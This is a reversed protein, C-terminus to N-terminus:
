SGVAQCFDFVNEPDYHKKIRELRPLNTGYYPTCGSLSPDTFNVYSMDSAHAGMEAHLGDLWELNSWVTLSPDGTSWSTDMSILFLVDRHPFATASVPIRNIAGGWTFLAVGGGDPNSSGPWRNLAAVITEIGAESLPTPTTRTRVAFPDGSTEHHLFDKAEWYTKDSIDCHRPAATAIAPALLDRLESAPGLHQGIVSVTGPSDGARSVGIRAAFEDPAEAMIRQMVALVERAHKWDWLLLCTSSPLPDRAQFTFSTNVGFNGGGGGRCAWFLDAHETANARVITGDALVVETEVLADSTLGFARSVAAVGGGLTLGGIGVEDSNGLPFALDHKELAAYIAGSRAGGGVTVRGTDPDVRIEDLARLDLVLGTGTSFGAYSHGGGRVVIQEGTDRAWVIARSVDAADRVALAATPQVDAYRKNFPATAATFGPDGPYLLRGGVLEQLETM